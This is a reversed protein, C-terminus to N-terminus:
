YRRLMRIEEALGCRVQRNCKGVAAIIPLLSLTHIGEQMQSQAQVEGQELQEYKCLLSGGVRAVQLRLDSRRATECWVVHNEKRRWARQRM